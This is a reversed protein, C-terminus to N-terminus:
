VVMWFLEYGADRTAHSFCGQFCRLRRGPLSSGFRAARSRAGESWLLIRMRLGQFITRRTYATRSRERLPGSPFWRRDWPTEPATVTGVAVSSAVVVCAHRRYVAVRFDCESIQCTIRAIHSSQCLAGWSDLRSETTQCAFQPLHTKAKRPARPFTPTNYAPCPNFYALLSCVVL